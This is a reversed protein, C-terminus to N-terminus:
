FRPEAPSPLARCLEYINCCTRMRSQMCLSLAGSTRFDDCTISPSSYTLSVVLYYLKDDYMATYATNRITNIYSEQPLPPALLWVDRSRAAPARRPEWYSGARLSKEMWMNPLGTAM